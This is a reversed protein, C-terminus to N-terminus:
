DHHKFDFELFIASHIYSIELKKETSQILVM